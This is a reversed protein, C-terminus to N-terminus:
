MWGFRHRIRASALYSSTKGWRDTMRILWEESSKPVEAPKVAEAAQDMARWSTFLALTRGGAAVILAALENASRAWLETM